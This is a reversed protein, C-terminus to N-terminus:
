QVEGADLAIAKEFAAKAAATVVGNAAFVLAEGLAAQREATEGNLTLANRRAKVADDFRGLRLYVPAIVEWGRSDNPNRELHTEIQAVMAEVSPSARADALRAALPRDSILPSGLALYLGAAGCPLL